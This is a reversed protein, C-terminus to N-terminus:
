DAVRVVLLAIDDRPTGHQFELVAREIQEAITTADMGTCTSVLRRIGDEGFVADASRAETIGDTYFVLVDGPGLETSQDSMTPDSLVGILTGVRCANEIRGDARMVLPVPHGGSTTTLRVGDKVPRLRAYAVTCFRQDMVDRMGAEALLADNLMGLVRSPKRAQMAGARVTYRALATLAAADAGKGCVDGIVIAWDDKGTRFVDYFDGGVENGEGAAHYRAAVEVGPIQPLHPPLLSRQLTRAVHSRERYLRANDIALAARRGLDEVLSLDNPGYAHGGSASVLTVAGLTRGRAVLPAILASAYGLEAVIRRREADPSNGGCCDMGDAAIVGEGTALVADLVTGDRHDSHVGKLRNALERKQPEAHAIAIRRLTGDEEIVDVACWDALFPVVLNALRELVTRYNLSSSLLASAEVLFALRERSERLALEAAKEETIDRVYGTFIPPDSDVAAIALEVPFETGDSRLANVEVRQDILAGSGTELYRRLGERHRERDEPPILLDALHKGIVDSRPYGFTREAAPNFEIIRGEHDISIFADIAADRMARTRADRERVAGAAEASEMFQGIQTGITVMTALLEDDPQRIKRSFFELVGLVLGRLVVPFGFASHLGQRVAVPGRPFNEDLAVDPIWMPEGHTWVRGPLGIGPRFTLSRTLDLFESVEATPDNWTAQSRLVGAAPDAIWFAGADWGLGECISQLIGPLAEAVTVSQALVTTTAHEVQARREALIRETVDLMIGRLREPRGQDDGAVFMLDRIWVTRGDASIVRYLFDHHGGREGARAYATLARERDSRHIISAWFGPEKLWRDVPYGVIDEARRSVFTFTRTPAPEAEWVIAELSDVLAEMRRETEEVEEAARANEVALAARRALAEALSLDDADFRRGSESSVLTIAGLIRGRAALPVIMASRFGGLRRILELHEEDRATGELQEASIETYLESSGTRVVKPVGFGADMPPPYRRELEAAAEVKAPDAHVVAVRTLRGTADLVDIACWDALAPVSLDALRELAAWDTASAILLESARALFALRSSPDPMGPGGIAPFVALTDPADPESPDIM